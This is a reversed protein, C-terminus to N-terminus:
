ARSCGRRAPARRASRGGIRRPDVLNIAVAPTTTTQKALVVVGNDLMTRTPALGAHIVPAMMDGAVARVLRRHPEVRRPDSARRRRGAELTVAAIRAPLATFVDVSAITEFYGLQHAINTVSDNDFM